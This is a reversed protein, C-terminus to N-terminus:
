MTLVQQLSYFMCLFIDLVSIVTKYASSFLDGFFLSQNPGMGEEHPHCNSINSPGKVTPCTDIGPVQASMKSGM